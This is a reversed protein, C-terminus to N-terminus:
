GMTMVHDPSEIADPGAMFVFNDGGIVSHKTTIVTDEPHFDRSSAIATHHNTIVEIIDNKFPALLEDSLTKVGALAVRNNHVFVPKLPDGTSLNDALHQATTNNNAIIIM